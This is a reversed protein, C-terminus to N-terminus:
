RKQSKKEYEAASVPKDATKAEKAADKDAKIEKRIDQNRAWSRGALSDLANDMDPMNLEKASKKLGAVVRELDDKARSFPFVTATDTTKFQKDQYYIAVDPRRLTEASKKFEDSVYSLKSKDHLIVSNKGIEQLVHNDLIVIDGKYVAGAKAPYVQTGQGYILAANLKISEPVSGKAPAPNAASTDATMKISRDNVNLSHTSQEKSGQLGDVSLDEIRTNKIDTDKIKADEVKPEEILKRNNLDIAVSHPRLQWLDNFDTPVSGDPMRQLPHFYPEALYGNVAAAAEKADQYGNGIDACITIPVDDFIAQLDLASKKLNTCSLAAVVFVGEKDKLAERISMATAVGEAIYIERSKHNVFDPEYYAGSKRGGALASKLGKSDIFELSTLGNANGIPAILIRGSLYNDGVKPTYGIITKLHAANIEFLNLLSAEDWTEVHHQLKKRTLYPHDALVPMAERLVEKALFAAKAYKEKDILDQEIRTTRTKNYPDAVRFQAQDSSPFTQQHLKGDRIGKAIQQAEERLEYITLTRNSLGTARLAKQFNARVKDWGQQVFSREDEAVYAFVEEAKEFETKEAYNKDVRSWVENLTSEQRTELISALLTRKEDPKFTNLGYHGFIEHRLARLLQDQTHFSTACLIVECKTPHYSGDIKGIRDVSGKTGYIQEQHEVVIPKIPINGNYGALFAEAIKQVEEVTLTQQEADKAELPPPLNANLQNARTKTLKM